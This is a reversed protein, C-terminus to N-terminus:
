SPFNRRGVKEGGFSRENEVATRLFCISTREGKREVVLEMAFIRNAQSQTKTKKIGNLARTERRDRAGRQNSKHGKAANIRIEGSVCDRSTPCYVCKEILSLSLACCYGKFLIAFKGENRRTRLASRESVIRDNATGLLSSNTMSLDTASRRSVISKQTEVRAGM